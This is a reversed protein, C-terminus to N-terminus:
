QTMYSYKDSKRNFHKTVTSRYVLCVVKNMKLVPLVTLLFNSCSPHSDGVSRADTEAILRLCMKAEGPYAEPVIATFTM